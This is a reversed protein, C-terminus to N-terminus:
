KKDLKLWALLRRMPDALEKVKEEIKEVRAKLADLQQRTTPKNSSKKKLTTPSRKLPVEVIM